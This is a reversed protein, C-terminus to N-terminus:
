PTKVIGSPLHGPTRYFVPIGLRKAIEIEAAVGVSSEWGDLKLVVLMSCAAIMREDLEKWYEWDSPLDIVEAMPHSHTIPSYVHHGEKVLHAAYLTLERFSRNEMGSYPGALYIM